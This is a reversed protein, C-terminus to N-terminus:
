LCRSVGIFKKKFILDPKIVIKNGIKRARIPNIEFLKGQIIKSLTSERGKKSLAKKEKKKGEM